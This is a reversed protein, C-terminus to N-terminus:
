PSGHAMGSQERRRSDPGNAQASREATGTRAHCATLALLPLFVVSLLVGGVVDSPTHMSTAVLAMSMAVLWFALGTRLRPFLEAWLVALLLGRVTHGSPFSQNFSDKSVLSARIGDIQHLLPREVATKILVEVLSAGVFVAAWAAARWPLGRVLLVLAGAACAMAAVLPAAPVTLAFLARPAAANTERSVAALPSMLMDFTSPETPPRDRYPMLEDVSWQDIGALHGAAVTVAIALLITAAVSSRGLARKWPLM